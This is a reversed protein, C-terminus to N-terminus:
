GLSFADVQGVGADGLLAAMDFVISVSACSDELTGPGAPVPNICAILDNNDTYANNSSAESFMLDDDSLM